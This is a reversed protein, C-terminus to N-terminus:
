PGSALATTEAYRAMARMVGGALAALAAAAAAIPISSPRSLPPPFAYHLVAGATAVTGAGLLAVAETGRPLSRWLGAVAAGLGVLAAAAAVLSWHLSWAGFLGSWEGFRSWPLVTLVLALGFGAAAVQLGNRPVPASPRPPAPVDQLVSALCEPGILRGRVPVACALCLGRGCV